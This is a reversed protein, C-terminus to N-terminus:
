GRVRVKVRVRVRGKPLPFRRFPFVRNKGLHSSYLSGRESQLAENEDRRHMSVLCYEVGRMGAMKSSPKETSWLIIGQFNPSIELPERTIKNVFLRVFV